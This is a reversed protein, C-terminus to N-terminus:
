KVRFSLNNNSLVRISNNKVLSPKMACNGKKAKLNWTITASKTKHVKLNTINWTLTRTKKNYTIKGTSVIPKKYTLGKALKFTLKFTGKNYGLNAITTIIKATKKKVSAVNKIKLESLNPVILNSTKSSSIYSSDENFTTKLTLIGTSTVKYTFTAIGQSNTKAQGVLKNNVYFNLTKGNIAKTGSKLTPSLTIIKNYTGKFDNMIISTNQKPIPNNNTTNTSNTNNTTNNTNNENPNSSNNTNDEINNIIMNFIANSSTYGISEDFKAEWLAFGLQNPTYQLKAIGESGTTANGIYQGNVYFHIIKDSLLNGFQDKLVVSLNVPITINAYIAQGTINTGYKEIILSIGSISYKSIIFNTNVDSKIYQNSRADYVSSGTNNSVIMEFYPLKNTDYAIPIGYLILSYVYIEGNYKISPIFWNNCTYNGYIGNINNNNWWNLNLNVSNNGSYINGSFINDGLGQNNNLLASNSIFMSYSIIINFSLYDYIKDQCSIAGGNAYQSYLIGINTSKRNANVSNNLFSCGEIISTGGLDIAGGSALLEYATVYQNVHESIASNNIFNCNKISINSGYIAGGQSTIYVISNKNEIYTIASNNTFNTNIISASNICYIAGGYVNCGYVNNNIFNCGDISLVGESSIAGGYIAGSIKGASNNVFSCNIIHLSGSSLIGGGNNTSIGNRIVVNILTLNGTETVTFIRSANKGDIIVSDKAGSGVIKISKSIIIDTNSSGSYVGSNLYVTGGASNVANEIGGSTNNSITVNETAHSSDIITLCAFLIM